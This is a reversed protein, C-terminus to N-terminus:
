FSCRLGFFVVFFVFLYMLYYLFEMSHVQLIFRSMVIILLIFFLKKQWSTKELFLVLTLATMYWFLALTIQYNVSYWMIWVQHYVVSFTAFVSLWIMVSWFSLWKLELASIHTFMNRLVVKSFYYVSGFAIFTQVVHIIKARLLFHTSDLQFIHFIYAWLKHWLLREPQISTSTHVLGNYMEDIAILHAIADYPYRLFPHTYLVAILGIAVIFFFLYNSFKESM